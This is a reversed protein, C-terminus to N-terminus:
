RSRELIDYTDLKSIDVPQDDLEGSPIPNDSRFLLFSQLYSMFYRPLSSGGDPVLALKRATKEVKLFRERIAIEPFVGRTRAEEPISELVAGVLADDNGPLLYSFILLYLVAKAFDFRSILTNSM